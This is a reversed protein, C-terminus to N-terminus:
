WSQRSTRQHGSGTHHDSGCATQITANTIGIAM